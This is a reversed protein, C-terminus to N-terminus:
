NNNLKLYDEPVFFKNTQMIRQSIETNRYWNVPVNRKFYVYDGLLFITAIIFVTIYLLKKNTVRVLHHTFLILLPALVPFIYRGQVSALIFGTQKYSAYNNFYTLVLTYFVLILTLLIISRESKRFYRIFVGIAFIGILKYPVMYELPKILSQHGFIGFIGLYMSESWQYFYHFPDLLKIDQKNEILYESTSFVPSTLCQTYTLVQDCAPTITRYVFINRGYFIVSASVLVVTIFLVTITVVINNKPSKIHKNRSNRFTKFIYYLIILGCIFALPIATIKTMVALSSLSMFLMLSTKNNTQFFNVTYYIMMVSLMNIFNDYSVNASLFSLMPINTFILLTLVIAIKNDTISKTLKILYIISIVSFSINFLRLFILPSFDLLNLKLLNGLIYHYLYPSTNVLLMKESTPFFSFISNTNSFAEIVGIHWHEDPSIGANTTISIELLRFVFYLATILISSKYVFSGFKKSKLFPKLEKLM